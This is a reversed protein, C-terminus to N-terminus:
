YICYAQTYNNDPIAAKDVYLSAGRPDTQFYIYLNIKYCYDAIKVEIEAAKTGKDMNEGNCVDVYERRLDESKRRLWNYQNKTIELRDCKRDREVNYRKREKVTYNM